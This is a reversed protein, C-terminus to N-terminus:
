PGRGNLEETVALLEETTALLEEAARAVRTVRVDTSALGQFVGVWLEDRYSRALQRIEREAAASRVLADTFREVAAFLVQGPLAAEELLRAHVRYAAHTASECLARYLREVGDETEPVAVPLDLPELYPRIRPHLHTHYDLRVALLEGVAARAVLCPEAVDTALDALHVLAAYGSQDRMLAGTVGSVAAAVDM